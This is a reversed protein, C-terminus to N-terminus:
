NLITSPDVLRPQTVRELTSEMGTASVGFLRVSEGDSLCARATAFAGRAEGAAEAGTFTERAGNDYEIGFKM